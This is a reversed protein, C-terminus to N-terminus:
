LLDRDRAAPCCFAGMCVRRCPPAPPPPPPATYAAPETTRQIGRQRHLMRALVAAARTSATRQANCRSCVNCTARHMNHTAHQVTCTTQQMTCPAINDPAHQAICTARHLTTQQMEAGRAPALPHALCPLLGASAKAYCPGAGRASRTSPDGTEPRRRASAFGPTPGTYLGANAAMQWFSQPKCGSSACARLM